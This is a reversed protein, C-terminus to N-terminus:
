KLARGVTGDRLGSSLLRFIPMALPVLLAMPSNDCCLGVKSCPLVGIISLRMGLSESQGNPVLLYQSGDTQIFGIGM